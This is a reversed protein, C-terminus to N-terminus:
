RVDIILLGPRPPASPGPPQHLTNIIFTHASLRRLERPRQRLEAAMESTLRTCSNPAPVAKTGGGWLYTLYTKNKSGGPPLHELLERGPAM